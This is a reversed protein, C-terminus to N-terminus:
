WENGQKFRLYQGGNKLDSRMQLLGGGRKCYDLFYAASLQSPECGLMARTWVTVSELVTASVSQEKVFDEFTMMDYKRHSADEIDISHCLEEVM